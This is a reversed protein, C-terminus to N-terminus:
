SSGNRWCPGSLPLGSRNTFLHVMGSYDLQLLYTRAGCRSLITAKASPDDDEDDIYDDDDKKNSSSNLVNVM